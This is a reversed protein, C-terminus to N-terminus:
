RRGVLTVGRDTCSTSSLYSNPLVFADSRLGLAIRSCAFANGQDDLLVDDGLEPFADPSATRMLHRTPRNAEPM